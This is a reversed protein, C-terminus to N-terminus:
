RLSDSNKIMRQLLVIVPARKNWSFINWVSSNLLVISTFSLPIKRHTRKVAIVVTTYTLLVSDDELDCSKVDEAKRRERLGNSTGYGITVHRM